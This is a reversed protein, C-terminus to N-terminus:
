SKSVIGYFFCDAISVVALQNDHNAGRDDLGGMGTFIDKSEFRSKTRADENNNVATLQFELGGSM